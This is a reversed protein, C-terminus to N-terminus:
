VIVFTSTSGLAFGVAELCCCCCCYCCLRRCCRCAAQLKFRHTKLLATSIRGFSVQAALCMWDQVLKVLEDNEIIADTIGRGRRKKRGGVVVREADCDQVDEDGHDSLMFRVAHEAMLTAHIRARARQGPARWM